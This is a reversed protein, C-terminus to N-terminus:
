HGGWAIISATFLRYKVTDRLEGPYNPTIASYMCGETAKDCCTDNVNYYTSTTIFIGSTRGYQAGCPIGQLNWIYLMAICLSWCTACVQDALTIGTTCHSNTGYASQWLVAARANARARLQLATNHTTLCHLRVSCCQTVSFWSLVEPFAYVHCVPASFSCIRPLQLQYEAFHASVKTGCVIPTMCASKSNSSRTAKACQQPATCAPDSCSQKIPSIDSGTSLIICWNQLCWMLHATIHTLTCSKCWGCHSSRLLQLPHGNAFLAHTPKTLM